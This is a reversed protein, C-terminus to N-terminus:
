VSPWAQRRQLFARKMFDAVRLWKGPTDLPLYDGHDYDGGAKEIDSLQWPPRGQAPAPTPPGESGLAIPFALKLVKDERFAPISIQECNNAGIAYEATLCDRDSAARYRDSSGCRDRRGPHQPGRM